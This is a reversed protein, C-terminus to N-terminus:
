EVIEKEPVLKELEKKALRRKNRASIIRSLMRRPGSKVTGRTKSISGSATKTGQGKNQM